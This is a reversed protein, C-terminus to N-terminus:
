DKAGKAKTMLREIAKKLQEVNGNLVNDAIIKVCRELFEEESLSPSYRRSDGQCDVTLFGLRELQAFRWAVRDCNPRDASKTAECYQRPTGGPHEFVWQLIQMGVRSPIQDVWHPM